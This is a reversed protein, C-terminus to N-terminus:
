WWPRKHNFWTPDDKAAKPSAPGGFPPVRAKETPISKLYEIIDYREAASLKRGIVGPASGDDFAHGANSNGPSSVSHLRGGSKGSPDFGVKIPDFETGVYFTSSREAVPSLLEYLNPVSGNHLYPAVAWMGEAPAAKFSRVPPPTRSEPDDGLYGSADLLEAADIRPSAAVSWDKLLKAVVGFFAGASVKAQGGFLPALHKTEAWVDERFTLLDFHTADTGVVSQPVLANAILRKGQQRPETWRYPYTTHCSACHASFLEAGRAVKARDLAGLVDEPWQPPALRRVLKEAAILWEINVTSEAREREPATASLDFRGFVGLCEAYNRRLPDNTVGSWEVWASHATNWLFPPKVPALTPRSNAPIGVGFALVMNQEAGIADMRGPGEPTGVLVTDLMSRIHRADRAIRGRLEGDDVPGRSRIRGALATFAAPQELVADLSEALAALFPQPTFANTKAGDILLAKGQHRLEGTHCASCNLGMYTGRFRGSDVVTRTVGIPLGDPNGAADVDTMLFGLASAEQGSNFLRGTRVNQLALYVDYSLLASGQSGWYFSSRDGESWGQELAVVAVPSPREGRSERIGSLAFISTIAALLTSRLKFANM